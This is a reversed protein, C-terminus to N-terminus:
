PTPGGRRAVFGVLRAAKASAGLSPVQRGPSEVGERGRAIRDSGALSSVPHTRGRKVGAGSGAPV